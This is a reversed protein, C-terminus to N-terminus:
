WESKVVRVRKGQGLEGKMDWIVVPRPRIVTRRPLVVEGHNSGNIVVGPVRDALSARSVQESIRAMILTLYIAEIIAQLPSSSKSVLLQCLAM